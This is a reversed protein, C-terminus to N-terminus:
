IKPPQSHVLAALALKPRSAALCNHYESAAQAQCRPGDQEEALALWGTLNESNSAHKTSQIM